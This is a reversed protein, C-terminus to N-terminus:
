GLSFKFNLENQVFFNVQQNGLSLNGGGGFCKPLFSYKSIGHVHVSAVGEVTGRMQM